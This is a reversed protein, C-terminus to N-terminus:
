HKAEYLDISELLLQAVPHPIKITNNLSLEGAKDEITLMENLFGVGPSEFEPNVGIEIRTMIQSVIDAHRISDTAIMRLLLKSYDDQTQNALGLCKQAAKLELQLRGRLIRLWESRQPETKTQLIREGAGAALLQYGADILEVVELPGAGNRIRQAAKEALAEIIHEQNKTEQLKNGRSGKLYQTVAAPSVRLVAAIDKVRFGMKTLNEAIGSRILPFLAEESKITTRDFPKSRM